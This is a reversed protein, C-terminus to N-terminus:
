GICKCSLAQLSNLNKEGQNTLYLLFLVSLFVSMNTEIHIRSKYRSLIRMSNQTQKYQKVLLNFEAFHKYM